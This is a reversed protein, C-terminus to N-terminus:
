FAALVDQVCIRFQGPGAEPIEREAVQLGGGARTVQVAKMKSMLCRM